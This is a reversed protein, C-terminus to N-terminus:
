SEDEERAGGTLKQWEVTLVMAEASTFGENILSLYYSRIIKAFDALGRSLQDLEAIWDPREDPTM